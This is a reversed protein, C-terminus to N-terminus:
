LFGENELITVLMVANRTGVIQGPGPKEDDEEEVEEVEDDGDADDAKEEKDSGERIVHDLAKGDKMFVLTPIAPVHTAFPYKKAISQMLERQDVNIKVIALAGPHENDLKELLAGMMHCPGCWDAWFDVIVKPNEKVLKTFMTVTKAHVIM